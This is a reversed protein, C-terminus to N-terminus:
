SLTPTVNGYAVFTYTAKVVGNADQNVSMGTCLSGATALFEQGTTTDLSLTKAVAGIDAIGPDATTALNCEVTATWDKFGPLRSKWTDGMGTDDDVDVTIDLSFSTVKATAGSDFTVVGSKGHFSAM